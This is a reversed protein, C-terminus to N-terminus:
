IKIDSIVEHIKKQLYIEKQRFNKKYGLYMEGSAGTYKNTYMCKLIDKESKNDINFYKIIINVIIKFAEEEYKITSKGVTLHDTTLINLLLRQRMEKSSLFKKTKEIDHIVIQSNKVFPPNKLVDVIEDTTYILKNSYPIEDDIKLDNKCHFKLTESIIKQQLKKNNKKVIICVDLDSSNERYINSGYIIISEVDNSFKEMILKCYENCINNM